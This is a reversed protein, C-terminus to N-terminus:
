GGAIAYGSLSPLPVTLTRAEPSHRVDARVPEWGAKPDYRLVRYPPDPIPQGGCRAYSVTLEAPSGEFTRDPEVQVLVYRSAPEVLRYTGPNGPPVRLRHGGTELTGGEAGVTLESARTTALRCLFAGEPPPPAESTDPERPWVCGSLAALLLVLRPWRLPTRM